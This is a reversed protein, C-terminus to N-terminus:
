RQNFSRRCSLSNLSSCRLLGIPSATLSAYFQINKEKIYTTIEVHSHIKTIQYRIQITDKHCTKTLLLYTL